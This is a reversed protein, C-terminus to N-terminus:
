KMEFIKKAYEFDEPEDIDVAEIDNVEQIYPNFGIRRNYKTFLEKHFIFFSSTEVYIPKMDQTRPIDNLSYNIPKGNYWAFTQIKKASFASDNMGLIVQNLANELTEYKMFPSTTHALVYIDADVKKIFASYIENGKVFPGDLEKDRELFSVGSPLYKVIAEDSCYVYIDNIAKVKLLENPVYWCLPHKGLTLINKHPIRESDMKIPILAVVKM